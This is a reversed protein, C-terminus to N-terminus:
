DNHKEKYLATEILGHEIIAASKTEYEFTFEVGDILITFYWEEYETFGLLKGFMNATEKHHKVKGLVSIKNTVIDFEGQICNTLKVTM